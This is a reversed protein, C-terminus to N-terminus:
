FINEEVNIVQINAEKLMQTSIKRYSIWPETDPGSGPNVIIKKIGSNIIAKTCDPCPLHASIYMEAGDINIGNKAANYIANREAHEIWLFREPKEYREKKSSDVNNPFNNFGSSIISGSKVIIAGIKIAPSNQGIISAIKLGQKTKM